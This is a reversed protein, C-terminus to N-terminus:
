FDFIRRMKDLLWQGTRRGERGDELKSTAERRQSERSAIVDSIMGAAQPNEKFLSTFGERDMELVEVDTLARITANRPEGLLLAAEGFFQSRGLTAVQHLRGDGAKVLVGVSGSRIVYFSEGVEGEHVLTEGAGFERLAVSPVLVRLDADSLGSLIDVKRLEAMLEREFDANARRDARSEAVQTILMPNPIEISHRRLAYWLGSVVQDRIREQAGYDSVWYRVRYNIAFDGYEWAMVQPAPDRMVEPLDHLLRLAVERVHNPAIGYSLGLNVEDRFGGTAYNVLVEHAVASNPIRVREGSRTIITTVNWGIGDVRGVTNAAKVWDGVKFLSGMQLALGTFINRLPEQLALLLGGLSVSSITVIHTLKLGFDAYLVAMLVGAWIVLMLLDKFITPFPPKGRRRLLEDAIELVFRIIGLMFIAFAAAAVKSAIDASSFSRSVEDLVIGAAMLVFTSSNFAFRRRVAVAAALCLIVLIAEDIVRLGTSMWGMALLMELRTAM